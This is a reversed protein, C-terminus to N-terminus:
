FGGAQRTQAVAILLATGAFAAAFILIHTMSISM